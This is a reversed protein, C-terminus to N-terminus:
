GYYNDLIQNTTLESNAHEKRYKRVIANHKQNKSIKNTIRTSAVIGASYAAYPLLDKVRMDMLSLTKAKGIEDTGLERISSVSLKSAAHFAIMPKSSRYGSFKKDNVDAIADYGLSTLKNYFGSNVKSSTSLSHAPLTINLAEYVKSDIKGRRLSQLGKKITANQKKNEYVGDVTELHKLLAHAYDSDNKILDSLARVASKESAVKMANKVGIKTEFVHDNGSELLTSGYVGRYKTNDGKTMSFYFADSVGKNSNTSINQLVTGSKIWRDVTRDYQKYAIYSAAAALTLGATVAIIKEAKARRYAAVEAEEQSMGQKKYEEELELRHKSRKGVETNIKEKTREIQLKRKAWDVRGYARDLQETAKRNYIMGGSTVKNYNKVAEKQKKKASIVYERAKEIDVHYRKKGAPTLSGDENQFRRVGWKQGLIGHHALSLCTFPSPKNYFDITIM